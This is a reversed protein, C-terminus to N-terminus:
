QSPPQQQGIVALLQKFQELIRGEMATMDGKIAAIDDKTATTALRNDVKHLHDEIRGLHESLQKFSAIMDKALEEIHADTALQRREQASVRAEISPYLNM